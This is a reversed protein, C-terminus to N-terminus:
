FYAYLKLAIVDAKKTALLVKQFNYFNLYGLLTMKKAFIQSASPTILSRLTLDKFNSSLIYVRYMMLRKEINM